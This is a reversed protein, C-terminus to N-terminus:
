RVKSTLVHSYKEHFLKTNREMKTAESKDLGLDKQVEALVRLDSLKKYDESLKHPECFQASLSALGSQQMNKLIEIKNFQKRKLKTLPQKKAQTKWHTSIKAPRISSVFESIEEFNCHLSYGVM